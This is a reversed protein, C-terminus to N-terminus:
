PFVCNDSVPVGELQRWVPLYRSSYGYTGRFLYASCAYLPYGPFGGYSGVSMTKSTTQWTNRACNTSIPGYFGWFEGNGKKAGVWLEVCYGDEVRDLTTATVTSGNKCISAAGWTAYKTTSCIEVAQSSPAVVGSGV